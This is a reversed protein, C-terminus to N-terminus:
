WGPAEGGGDDEPEPEPVFLFHTPSADSKPERNKFIFLRMGTRLQFGPKLDGVKGKMHDGAKESKDEWLSAIKILRSRRM